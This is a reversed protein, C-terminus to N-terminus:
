RKAARTLKRAVVFKEGPQLAVNTSFTEYGARSAEFRYRGPPIQMVTKAPGFKSASGVTHGDIRVVADSPQVRVLVTAWFRNLMAQQQAAAGVDYGSDWMAADQASLPYNQAWPYPQWNYLTNPGAQTVSVTGLRFDPVVNTTGFPFVGVNQVAAAPFMPYASWPNAGIGRYPFFYFTSPNFWGGQPIFRRGGVTVATPPVQQGAPARPVIQASATLAPIVSLATLIGLAKLRQQCM